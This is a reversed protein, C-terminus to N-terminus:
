SACFSVQQWGQKEWKRGGPQVAAGSDADTGRDQDREGERIVTPPASLCIYKCQHCPLFFDDALGQGAEPSPCAPSLPFGPRNAGGRAPCIETHQGQGQESNESPVLAEAAGSECVGVDAKRPLSLLPSSAPLSLAACLASPQQQHACRSLSVPCGSHTHNKKCQNASLATSSAPQTLEM